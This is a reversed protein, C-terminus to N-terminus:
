ELINWTVCNLAGGDKVYGNVRVQFIKGKYQPFCEEIQEKAQNDEERGFAPIVIIDKTQLFNIYAWSYKDVKEVDYSLVKVNFRRSLKDYYVDAMKRDFDYYNTMLVDKGGLYRVIGDSHGYKENDDWPLFLIDCQFLNELEDVLKEKSYTRRNERFVKDTMIVCDACKIVNGGDIIIDTRTTRIGLAELQATPDTIYACDKPNLMYNPYYRYQVFHDKGVQIPMYDRCWGDSTKRLLDYSVGCHELLNLM